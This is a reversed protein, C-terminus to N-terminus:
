GSVVQPVGNDTYQVVSLIIFLAIILNIPHIEIFYKELPGRSERM